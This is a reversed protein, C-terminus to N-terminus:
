PTGTYGDEKSKWIRQLGFEAKWSSVNKIFKEKQIKLHIMAENLWEWYLIYSLKYM